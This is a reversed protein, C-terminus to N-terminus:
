NDILKQCNIHNFDRYIDKNKLINLWELNRKDVIHLKKNDNNEKLIYHISKKFSLSDHFFINENLDSIPNLNFFRTDLFVLFPFNEYYPKFVAGSANSIIVCDYNGLNHDNNKIFHINKYNKKNMSSGPHNKIFFKKDQNNEFIKLLAETISEDLDAFVLFNQFNNKKSLKKKLILNEYRLSEVAIANKSNLKINDAWDLTDKSHILVKNPYINIFKNPNLFFYRLDWYRVNSHPFGILECNIKKKWLHNLILEFDLNEMLYLGLKPKEVREILNNFCEYFFINRLSRHGIFTDALESNLIKNFGSFASTNNIRLSKKHIFYNVIIKLYKILALFASKLSFLNDLILHSKNKEEENLINIIKNADNLSRMTKTPYFLHIWKVKLNNKKIVEVLSNWYFSKYKGKRLNDLDFHTFIDFLLVDNENIKFKKEKLSIRSVLLILQKLYDKKRNLKLFFTNLKKKNHYNFEVKINKSICYKYILDSFNKDSINIHVKSFIKKKIFERIVFFKVILLHLSNKRFASQHFVSSLFFYDFNEDLIYNLKSKRWIKNLYVNGLSLIKKKYFIQDKDIIKNISYINNKQDSNLDNWLLTTCGKKAAKINEEIFLEIM